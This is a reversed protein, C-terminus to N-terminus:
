TLGHRGHRRAARTRRRVAGELRYRYRPRRCTPRSRPQESAHLGTAVLRRHVAVLCFRLCAGSQNLAPPQQKAVRTCTAAGADDDKHFTGTAGSGHGPSLPM